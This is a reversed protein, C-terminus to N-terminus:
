ASPCSSAPSLEISLLAYPTRLRIVVFNVEIMISRTATNCDPSVNHSITVNDAAANVMAIVIDIIIHLVIAVIFSLELESCLHDTLVLDNSCRIGLVEAEQILMGCHDAAAAGATPPIM